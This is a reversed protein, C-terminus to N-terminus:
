LSLSDNDIDIYSTSQSEGEDTHLSDFRELREELIEEVRSGGDLNASRELRQRKAASEEHHPTESDSDSDSVVVRKM